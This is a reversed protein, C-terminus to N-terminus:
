DLRVCDLHNPIIVRRSRIGSNKESIARSFDLSNRYEGHNLIVWDLGSEGFQSLFSMLQGHNSHGSFGDVSSIKAEVPFTEGGIQVEKEGQNLSRGLTNRATYGVFTVHNKPDKIGHKLYEIMPGGSLMGSTSVVIKAGGSNIIDQRQAAGFVPIVNLKPFLTGHDAISRRCRHKLLQPFNTHIENTEPISGDVYVPLKTGIENLALLVEQSRGVAFSPIMMMAKDREV